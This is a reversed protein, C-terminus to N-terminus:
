VAACASTQCSCTAATRARKLVLEFLGVPLRVIAPVHNLGLMHHVFRHSNKRCDSVAVAIAEPTGNLPGRDRRDGCCAAIGALRLGWDGKGGGIARVLAPAFIIPYVRMHVVMGFLVGAAATRRTLLSGLLGLLLLLAVVDASGRTSITATFPNALWAAAAAAASADPARLARLLHAILAAAALDCASFLLQTSLPSPPTSACARVRASPLTCRSVHSPLGTCPCLPLLILMMLSWSLRPAAHRTFAGPMVFRQAHLGRMPM